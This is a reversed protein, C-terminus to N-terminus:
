FVTGDSVVRIPPVGGPRLQEAIRRGARWTGGELVRTLPLRAADLGLLERVRAALRDLLAITLARWEVVIESDSAHVCQRVADHAPRLLGLDVLLGGNRYEALGTLQDLGTVTFGAGEFPEVLSYTLWQPLKHFPVLRDTLDDSRLVSHRGVDGLNVGGLALRDPWVLSLGRMVADFITEGSLRKGPARAAIYDFLNGVRPVEAGFLEPERRMARGLRQLLACRGALGVLPNDRSVQFAAGLRDEDIGSLAEGDSRWPTDSTASLAGSCYLHFSAVALGESRRYVAGDAPDTFRWREGAGADLLGSVVALDIRVRAVEDPSLGACRAALRGWRDVGGAAFHRWRSHYPVALTPYTAKTTEIVYRATADLHAGDLEFHELAGREAAALLAGCRERVAALSRLWGAAEVADHLNAM